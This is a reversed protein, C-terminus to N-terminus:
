KAHRRRRTALRLRGGVAGALPMGLYFPIARLDPAAGTLCLAALLFAAALLTGGTLGCLVGSKRHLAAARAGGLAALLLATGIASPLTLRTPDSTRYLLFSLFCLFAAGLILSFGFARLASAPLTHSKRDGLHAHARRTREM